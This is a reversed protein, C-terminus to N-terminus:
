AAAAPESLRTVLAVLDPGELGDVVKEVKGDKYFLFVPKSKGKYKDFEKMGIKDVNVTCFKLPRDGLEFYLRKFTSLIAKCPGCWNSYLEVVQLTGPTNLVESKFVDSSTIDLQFSM